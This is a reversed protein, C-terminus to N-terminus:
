EDLDPYKELVAQAYRSIMCEGQSLKDIVARLEPYGAAALVVNRRLVDHGRWGAATKEFLLQFESPSMELLQKLSPWDTDAAEGPRNHPCSLQCYDCGYIIRHKGLMRCQEASLDKKDTAWYAMCRNHDFDNAGAYAETPCAGLCRDCIGCQNDMPQDPPLNLDTTLLGLWVMSGHGPVIIFNNKGQWGVGARLAFLRECGPGNDVQVAFKTNPKLVNIYQGLENLKEAVLYHYDPEQAFPSLYGKGPQVKKVYRNYYPFAGVLVSLAGELWSQPNSRCEADWRVFPPQPRNSLRAAMEEDAAAPAIGLACFGLRIAESKIQKVLL